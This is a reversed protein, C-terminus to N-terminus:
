IKMQIKLVSGFHCKMTIEKGATALYALANRIMASFHRGANEETTGIANFSDLITIDVFHEAEIIHTYM